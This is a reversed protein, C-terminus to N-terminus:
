SRLRTRDAREAVAQDSGAAKEARSLVTSKYAPNILPPHSDWDRPRFPTGENDPM